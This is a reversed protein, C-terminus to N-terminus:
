WFSLSMVVPEFPHSKALLLCCVCVVVYREGKVKASCWLDIWVPRCGNRRSQTMCSMDLGDYELLKRCRVQITLHLFFPNLYDTLVKLFKSYALAISHGCGSWAFFMLKKKVMDDKSLTALHVILSPAPDTPDWQPLMFVSRTRYVKMNQKNGTYAIYASFSM